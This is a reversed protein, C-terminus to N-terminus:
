REFAKECASFTDTRRTKIDELVQADEQPDFRDSNIIADKQNQYNSQAKEKCRSIAEKANTWTYHERDYARIGLSIKDNNKWDTTNQESSNEPAADAKRSSRVQFAKVCVSFAENKKDDLAKFEKADKFVDYRKQDLLAKIKVAYSKLALRQCRLTAGEVGNWKENKKDYARIAKSIDDDYKWDNERISSTKKPPAKKSRRAAYAEGNGWLPLFIVIILLQKLFKCFLESM